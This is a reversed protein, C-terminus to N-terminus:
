DGADRSCVASIALPRTADFRGEGADFWAAFAAPPQVPEARRVEAVRTADGVRGNIYGEMALQEFAVVVTSRSVDYTSAIARSSPLPQGATLRGDVIHDRIQVYMQRHLPTRSHRELHLDVLTLTDAHKSM